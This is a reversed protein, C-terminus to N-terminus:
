GCTGSRRARHLLEDLDHLELRPQHEDRARGHWRRRDGTARGSLAPADRLRDGPLYTAVTRSSALAEVDDDTMYTCHDVSAAGLEVALQVGLGPRSSPPTSGCASGPPRARGRAGRAVPRRRVRRARLLRRDLPCAAPLGRADRRVRARRLRRPPGRVRRPRCPRRSVHRRRDAGRRAPVAAGRRRGDARVGVQDRHPHDWRAAGRAPTGRDRARLESTADRREDGRRQCPDRRGGYPAGAMRAAFEEARDGAFVLHTHSDVFGPIACRGASISGSTPPPAPASSRARRRGDEIVLAADRVIGLPGEGLSPDCTALVGINDLALTTVLRRRDRRRLEAPSMSALRPRRRPRDRPRRRHRHARRRRRRRVPGRRARGAPAHGALRVGDLSVSVLDALAGAEIRGGEPWGLSAYGHGTMAFALEAPTHRGRVLTGLREDLEVARADEFMDIVAHSDSGLTLRVGADVLDRAPGIGDALDRETTPCFCSFARAEGLRRIDDATMHTTHIATFADSVAGVSDLLATPTVGHAELTTENEAPQESVHAHLPWGRERTSRRSSRPAMPISRESATSRPASGRTARDAGSRSSASHGRTARGADRFRPLGGNLYCADLLTVRIGVDGAAAIIARGLENPDAYPTGDRDHHVYHFEGVLTM